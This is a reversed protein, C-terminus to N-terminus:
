ILLSLNLVFLRPPSPDTSNARPAEGASDNLPACGVLVEDTSAMGKQDLRDAQQQPEFQVDTAQLNCTKKPTQPSPRECEGKSNCCSKKSLKGGFLQQCPLCGGITLVAIVLTALVSRYGFFQVRM